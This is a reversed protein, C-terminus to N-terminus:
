LTGSTISDQYETLALRFDECDLSEDCENSVMYTGDAGDYDATQYKFRCEECFDESGALPEDIKSM